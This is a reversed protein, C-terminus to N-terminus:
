MKGIKHKSHAAKLDFGECKNFGGTLMNLFQKQRKALKKMDVGEFFPGTIPDSLQLEYFRDVICNIGAEGGLRM